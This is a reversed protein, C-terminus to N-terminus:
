AHRPAGRLVRPQLSTRAVMRIIKEGYRYEQNSFSAVVTPQRAIALSVWNCRPIAGRVDWAWQFPMHLKSCTSNRVTSCKARDQLLVEMIFVMNSTEKKARAETPFAAAAVQCTTGPPPPSAVLIWSPMSRADFPSTTM